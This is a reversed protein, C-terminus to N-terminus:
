EDIMETITGRGLLGRGLDELADDGGDLLLKALLIPEDTMEGDGEEDALCVTILMEGPLGELREVDRALM